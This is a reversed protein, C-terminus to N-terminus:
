HEPLDELADWEPSIIEGTDPNRKRLMGYGVHGTTDPSDPDFPHCEADEGVFGQCGRCVWRVEMRPDVPFDGDDDLPNYKLDIKGNEDVLPHKLFVEKHRGCDRCEVKFGGTVPFDM